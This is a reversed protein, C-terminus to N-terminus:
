AGRRARRLFAWGVAGLSVLALASPEPVVAQYQFNPGLFLTNNAGITGPYTFGPTGTASGVLHIEPSLTASGDVNQTVLNVLVSGSASYIGVYYTSGASLFVQNIAAYYTFNVLPNTATITVAALRTLGGSAWLGVLMDGQGTPGSVLYQLCGLSSVSLNTTPTFAWGATGPWIGSASPITYGTVAETTGQSHATCIAGVLALCKLINRM